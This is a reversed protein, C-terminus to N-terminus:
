MVLVIKGLQKAGQMHQFAERAERLPFTIDVVPVIRETNLLALMGAFDRPSGMTTGLIDQNRWFVNRISITAEGNVTRGYSVLRGGDRLADLSKNIYEGGLSDIVLDVGKGGSWARVHQVWDETKANSGAEAGFAAARELKWNQTSTVMVRAGLARAFQLAFLAV